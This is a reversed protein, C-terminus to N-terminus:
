QVQMKTIWAQSQMLVEKTHILQKSHKSVDLSKSEYLNLKKKAQPVMLQMAFPTYDEASQM